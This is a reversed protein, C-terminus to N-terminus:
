YVRDIFFKPLKHINSLLVQKSNGDLIYTNSYDKKSRTTRGCMQVLINLMTNTYWNKDRDFLRKIRKDSIPLYPLKVVICFRALDDKLDIGHTLSPSVLVTPEPSKYHKDLIHENTASEDRFLFRDETLYKKLIRTIENSHTHIIGKNTKHMLCIDKIQKAIGPILRSMNSYNLKNKTTVYIPSKKPDFTSEAEVYQYKTIGLSSAFNRHDIITASMLLVQDAYDFISSALKNAKLPTFTAANGSKTIVWEIKRWLSEADLINKYLNKLFLMSKRDGLAPNTDRQSKRVLSDIKESIKFSVDIMWEYALKHSDSLLPKILVGCNLLRQYDIYVTFQRILEEELESAEDCIIYNKRKVHSPLHSFMKYNLVTFKSTLAINRASYYPCINKTWCSDKMKPIFVCPATEVDYMEDVSCQYNTKGKLFPVENFLSKYQDQLSKTITLAFAGFPPERLCEVENVFNGTYDQKFAKYSNILNVFEPTPKNSCNALTAALFSKGSGTPASAIVYKYGASFAKEVERILRCQSDSPQYDKPFHALLM